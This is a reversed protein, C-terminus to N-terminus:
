AGWTASEERMLALPIVHKLGAGGAYIKSWAKGPRCCIDSLAYHPHGRWMMVTEDMDALEEQSFPKEDYRHFNAIKMAGYGCFHYYVEPICPGFVWAQFSDDFLPEKRLVMREIQLLYLIYQLQLNSIYQYDDACKNIIHQAVDLATYKTHEEVDEGDEQGQRQAESWAEFDDMCGIYEIYRLCEVWKDIHYKSVVRLHSVESQLAEQNLSEHDSQQCKSKWRNKM